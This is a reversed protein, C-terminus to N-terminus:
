PATKPRKTEDTTSLRRAPSDDRLRYDDKDAAEFLPDAVLSHRDWGEAQWASWDELVEVRHLEFDDVFVIGAESSLRLRPYFSAIPPTQHAPVRTTIEHLSWVPGVVVRHLDTWHSTPPRSATFGIEVPTNAPAARLWATLRYTAAPEVPVDPGRLGPQRAWSEKAANADDPVGEIRLCQRGSHPEDTTITATDAPSPRVTWNWPAPLTGPSGDEFGPNVETLNGGM